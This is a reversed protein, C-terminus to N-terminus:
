HDNKHWLKRVTVAMDHQKLAQDFTSCRECYKSDGDVFIMTEFLLPVPGGMSHDIGLFVTSVVDDGIVSRAIM